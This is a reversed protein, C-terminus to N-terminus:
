PISPLRGPSAPLDTPQLECLCNVGHCALDPSQPRIGSAMWVSGRKVKGALKLCSPCSEETPGLAWILKKDAGAMTKATNMVERYRNTWMPIRAQAEAMKFGDVKSHANVWDALGPIYGSQEFIMEDLRAQEEPTREGLEIGQSRAGEVWAQNFARELAERVSDVFAFSDITGNWLGRVLGRLRRGYDEMSKRGIILEAVAM